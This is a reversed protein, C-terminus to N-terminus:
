VSSNLLTYPCLLVDVAERVVDLQDDGIRPSKEGEPSASNMPLGELFEVVTLFHTDSRVIDTRANLRGLAEESSDSIIRQAHSLRSKHQESLQAEFANEARLRSIAAQWRIHFELTSIITHLRLRLEIETSLQNPMDPLHHKLDAPMEITIFTEWETEEGRELATLQRASFKYWGDMSRKGKWTPMLWFFDAADKITWLSEVVLGLDQGVHCPNTVTFGFSLHRLPHQFHVDSPVIVDVGQAALPAVIQAALSLRKHRERDRRFQVYQRIDNYHTTPPDLIWIELLEALKSYESHERHDLSAAGLYDAATHTLREFSAQMLELRDAADRFSNVTLNGSSANSLDNTYNVFQKLFNQFSIKWRQSSEKLVAEIDAATQQPPDPSRNLKEALRVLLNGYEFAAHFDFQKRTLLRQLGTNLAEVLRLADHRLHFWAEQYRYYSDPLYRSEVLRRWVVNKEVDSRNHLNAKPIHKVTGDYSPKLGAPLLWEGQAQYSTCFPMASRLINLRRMVQENESEGSSGDALFRIAVIDEELEISLTDTQLMLYGFVDSRNKAFWKM